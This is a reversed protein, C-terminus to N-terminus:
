SMTMIISSGTTACTHDLLTPHSQSSTGSEPAFVRSACRRHSKNIPELVLLRRPPNRPKPLDISRPHLNHPIPCSAACLLQAVSHNILEHPNQHQHHSSQIFPFIGLTRVSYRTPLYTTPRIMLQRATTSNQQKPPARVSLPLKACTRGEEKGGDARARKPGNGGFSPLCGLVSFASCGTCLSSVSYVSRM